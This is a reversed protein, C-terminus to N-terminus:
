PTIRIFAPPKTRPVGSSRDWVGWCYDIMTGQKPGMKVRGMCYIRSLGTETLLRQRPPGAAFWVHRLLLIVKEVSPFELARRLFREPGNMGYPPNTVITKPALKAGFGVADSDLFDLQPFGGGYDHIDTGTAAHGSALLAQVIAGPGCAPEWVPGALTERALLAQLAIAPTEICGAPGGDGAAPSERTMYRHPM